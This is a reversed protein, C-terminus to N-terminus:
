IVLENKVPLDPLFQYVFTKNDVPPLLCFLWYNRITTMAALAKPIGAM